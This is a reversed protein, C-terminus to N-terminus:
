RADGSTAAALAIFPKKLVGSCTKYPKIILLTKLYVFPLKIFSLTLFLNSSYKVLGSIALFSNSFNQLITPLFSSKFLNINISGLTPLPANKLSNGCFLIPM